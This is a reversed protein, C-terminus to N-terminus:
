FTGRWTDREVDRVGPIKRIRALQRPTVSEPVEAVAVKPLEPQPAIVPGSCVKRLRAVVEDDDASEEVYVLLRM